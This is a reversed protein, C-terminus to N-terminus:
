LLGSSHPKFVMDNYGQKACHVIFIEGDYSVDYKQKVKTLSVINTIAQMSFWVAKHFGKYDAVKSIPLKGCNSKLLLQRVAERGNTVFQPNCFVHVLSQNDLMIYNKMSLKSTAFSYNTGSVAKSLQAHSHEELSEDDELAGFEKHVQSLTKGMSKIANNISLLTKGVEKALGKSSGSKTSWVSKEDDDAPVM